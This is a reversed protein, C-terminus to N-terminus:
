LKMTMKCGVLIINWLEIEGNTNETLVRQRDNLFLFRVLGEQGHITESPIRSITEAITSLNSINQLGPLGFIRRTSTSTLPIDRERSPEFIMPKHNERCHEKGLDTFSQHGNQPERVWRHWESSHTSSWIEGKHGTISYIGSNERFLPTFKCAYKGDDMGIETYAICGDKHGTYFTQLHEDETFLTWAPETCALTHLCRREGLSWYNITSDSSSSVILRDELSFLLGRINQNHGVLEAVTQGSRVDVVTVFNNTGAYAICNGGFALSYFSAEQHVSSEFEKILGKGSIDWLKAYGDLGASAVWNENIKPAALCRVYDLHEGISVIRLEPDDPCWIKISLDSSASIVAFFDM